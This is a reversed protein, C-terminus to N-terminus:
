NHNDNLINKIDNINISLLSGKKMKPLGMDSRMAYMLDEAAFLIDTYNKKEDTAVERFDIFKLIVKNSGWLTLQQSFQDMDNIIENESYTERNTRQIKYVLKIFEFYPNERKQYLYEMRKQHYEIIKAVVSTFIVGVVSVTGTILAVIIVADLSSTFTKLWIGADILGEGIVKVLWKMFIICIFILGLFLIIALITNIIPHKEAFSQQKEM